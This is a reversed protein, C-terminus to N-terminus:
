LRKFFWGKKRGVIESNGNRNYGYCFAWIYKCKQLRVDLGRYKQLLLPQYNVVVIAFGISGM